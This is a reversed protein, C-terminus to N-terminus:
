FTKRGEILVVQTGSAHVLQDVVGIAGPNESVFAQLENVSDFFAPPDVKGQFVLALWFKKLENPSMDYIKECTYKGANTNTKMLAIVIKNGNRWRQKEGMFISKLESLKMESPAGKHNSIVSLMINQAHTFGGTLMLFIIILLKM